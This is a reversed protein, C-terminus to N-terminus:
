FKTAIISTFLWIFMTFLSLSKSLQKREENNLIKETETQEDDVYDAKRKINLIIPIIILIIILSTHVLLRSIGNTGMYFYYFLTRISNIIGNFNMYKVDYGNDINIFLVIFWFIIIYIIAYYIFGEYFTKIINIDICWQVIIITIYRIFFTAIIFVLRDDFTIALEDLPNNPDNEFNNLQQIIYDNDEKGKDSSNYDDIDQSLRAIKNNEDINEPQTKLNSKLEKIKKWTKIGKDKNNDLYKMKLQEDSNGAGGKMGGGILASTLYQLSSITSALDAEQKKSIETQGSSSTTIKKQLTNLVKLSSAASPASVSPAASAVQATLVNAINVLEDVVSGLPLEETKSTDNAAQQQATAALAPVPAQPPVAAQQQAPAPPTAPVPAAATASAPAPPPTAPQQHTRPSTSASTSTSTSENEDNRRHFEEFEKLHDYMENIDNDQKKLSEIVHQVLQKQEEELKSITEELDIIKVDQADATNNINKLHELKQKLDEIKTDIDKLEDMKNVFKKNKGNFLKKFREKIDNYLTSGSSSVKMEKIQEIKEELLKIRESLDSVGEKEIYYEGDDEEEDASSSPIAEKNKEVKNAKAPM